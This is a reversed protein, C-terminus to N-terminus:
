CYRYTPIVSWYGQWQVALRVMALPHMAIWSVSQRLGVLSILLYSINLPFHDCLTQRLNEASIADTYKSSTNVWRMEVKRPIALNIICFWLPSKGGKKKKKWKCTFLFATSPIMTFLWPKSWAIKSELRLVEYSFRLRFWTVGPLRSVLFWVFCVSYFCGSGEKTKNQRWRSEPLCSNATVSQPKMNVSISQLCFDDEPRWGLSILFVVELAM